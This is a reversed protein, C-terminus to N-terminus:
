PSSPGRDFGPPSSIKRGDLGARPGVWFGTCHTAPRERTYRIYIYIYIYIYLLMNARTVLSRTPRGLFRQENESPVFPVCKLKKIMLVSPRPFCGDEYEATVTPEPLAMSLFPPLRYFKRPGPQGSPPWSYQMHKGSERIIM